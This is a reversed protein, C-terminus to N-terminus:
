EAKFAESFGNKSTAKTRVFITQGEKIVVKNIIGKTPVSKWKTLKTNTLDNVNANADAVAYQLTKTLVGEGPIITVEAGKEGPVITVSVNPANGSVLTKVGKRPVSAPYILSQAARIFILDQYQASVTVTPKTGETPCGKWSNEFISAENQALQYQYNSYPKSFVLSTTGVVGSSTSKVSASPAKPASIYKNSLTVTDFIGAESKSNSLLIKYGAKVSNSPVSTKTVQRWTIKKVGDWIAYYYKTTKIDTLNFTIDTAAAKKLSKSVHIYTFVDDEGNNNDDDDDDDDGDGDGGETDSIKSFNATVTVKKRVSTDPLTFSTQQASANTLTGATATWGDFKYGNNPSSSINVTHGSGYVGEHPTVSGGGSAVVSLENYPLAKKLNEVFFRNAGNVIFNYRDPYGTLSHVGGKAEKYFLDTTGNQVGAEELRSVFRRAYGVNITPDADGHLVYTPTGPKLEYLEDFENEPTGWLVASAIHGNYNFGRNAKAYAYGAVTRGGASGGATFIYNPDFNYKNANERLWNIATNLDESADRMAPVEDATTPMDSGKRLRYDISATVYGLKAFRTAMEVIYGQKRTSDDRFGGGHVFVIVPRNNGTMGDGRYIDMSLDIEKQKYDRLTAFKEETVNVTSFQENLYVEPNIPAYSRTDVPIEAPTNPDGGGGESRELQLVFTRKSVGNAATVDMEFENLGMELSVRFQDKILTKAGDKVRYINAVAGVPIQPIICVSEVVENVAGAYVNPPNYEQFVQVAGGIVGTATQFGELVKFTADTKDDTPSGAGTTVYLKPRLNSSKTNISHFKLGNSNNTTTFPILRLSFTGGKGVKSNYFDTIDVVCQSNSSEAYFQTIYGMDRNGSTLDGFLATSTSGNELINPQTGWTMGAQWDSVEFVGVDHKVSGGSNGSINIQLEVKEAKATPANFTLYPARPGSTSPLKILMDEANDFINVSGGEVYTTKTPYDIKVGEPLRDITLTYELQADWDEATTKILVTNKGANLNATVTFNEDQEVVQGNVKVVQPSAPTKETQQESKITVVSTEYPVLASYDKVSDTLNPSIAINELGDMVKLTKLKANNDLGSAGNTIVLSPKTQESAGTSTSNISYVLNNPTTSSQSMVTVILTLTLPGSVGQAKDKLIDTINADLKVGRSNAFPIDVAGDKNRFTDAYWPHSTNFADYYTKAEASGNAGPSLENSVPQSAWTMPTALTVPQETVFLGLQSTHTGATGSSTDLVISFLGKNFDNEKIKAVDDASLELTYYILRCATAGANKLALNATGNVIGGGGDNSHLFVDQTPIITRTDLVSDVVTFSRRYDVGNYSYTVHQVGKSKTSIANPTITLGTLDAGGNITVGQKLFDEGLEYNPASGSLRQATGNEFGVPTVGGQFQIPGIDPTSQNISNGSIDTSPMGSIQKGAGIAPSDSRLKYGDFMAKFTDFNFNTKNGGNLTRKGPAKGPFILKPDLYINNQGIGAQIGSDPKAGIGYFINNDIDRNIVVETSGNNRKGDPSILHYVYNSDSYVINNYFKYDLVGSYNGGSRKYTEYIVPIDETYGTSTGKPHTPIVKEGIYFLNNYIQTNIFNYNLNLIRGRDNQSVNYRVVIDKDSAVTCFTILGFNNDHTYNYEWVTGPSYFDADFGSGDLDHHERNDYAENYRFTTGYVTRSMISNGSGARDSINHVINKEVVCTEDTLRIIMANKGTDTVLNDRIAVNSWKMDNWSLKESSGLVDKKEAAEAPDGTPRFNTSFGNSGMTDSTTGYFQNVTNGGSGWNFYGDFFIGTSNVREVVCGEIVVDEFRPKEPKSSVATVAFGIGGTMKSVNTGEVLGTVDHVYLDKLTVGKLTGDDRNEVFVGALFNGTGIGSGTVTLGPTINTVEIDSVTVYAANYLYISANPVPNGSTARMDNDTGSINSPNQGTGNIIPKNGSGYAGVTIENGNTGKGQIKLTGEFISGRELFVKDGPALVLNDLKSLNRWPSGESGNNSDNGNTSSFYYSTGGTSQTLELPTALPAAIQQLNEDLNEETNNNTDKEKDDSPPIESEGEVDTDEIPLNDGNDIPTSVDEISTDDAFAYFSANTFCLAFILLFAISRKFMMFVGKRILILQSGFYFGQSLEIAM